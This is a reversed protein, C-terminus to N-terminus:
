LIRKGGIINGNSCDVYYEKNSNKMKTIDNTSYNSSNKHKISILWVKRSNEESYPLDLDINSFNLNNELMYIYNNMKRIGLEVSIESIKNNTFEKEENQLYDSM